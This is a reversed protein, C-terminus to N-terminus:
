YRRPFQSLLNPTLNPLKDLPQSQALRLTFANLHNINGSILTSSFLLLIKTTFAHLPVSDRRLLSSIIFQRPQTSYSAIPRGVPFRRQLEMELM